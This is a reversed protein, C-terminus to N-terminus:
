RALTEYMRVLEGVQHEWSFHEGALRSCLARYTDGEAALRARLKQTAQVVDDAQPPFAVTQGVGTTQVFESFDGVGPTLIVPLGCRQYEAFKVPSAVRNTLTNERLLLGVDAAMLFPAVQDHRAARVTYRKAAVGLAGLHAVLPQAEQSVIFFHADPMSGLIAAVAAAVADARQYAAMSGSYCVIFQDGFGLEQRQHTRIAPDYYFRNTDACCGVVSRPLGDKLRHTELLHAALKHSVTNLADASQLGRIFTRDASWRRYWALPGQGTVEDTQAGRMDLLIRLRPDRRRLLAAAVTPGQGRCHAVIPVDGDYRCRVLADRLKRAWMHHEFPTNLIPRFDFVVEVGPLAARIADERERTKAARKFRLSTLVLLARRVHPAHRGLNALPTVVQSDLVPSFVGDVVMSIMRVSAGDTDTM